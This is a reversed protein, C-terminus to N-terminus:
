MNAKLIEVFESISKHKWDSRGHKFCIQAGSISLTGLKNLKGNTKKDGFLDFQVDEKEYQRLELERNIRLVAKNRQQKAAKNRQQKAM